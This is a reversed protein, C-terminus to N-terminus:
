IGIAANISDSSGHIFETGQRGTAKISLLKGQLSFYPTLRVKAGITVVTDEFVYSMPLETPKHFEQVVHLTDLNQEVGMFLEAVSKGSKKHLFTVGEGWSSAGHFGSTKLVFARKSKALSALQSSREIGEPMGPAFYAEEGVIWTPPIVQRLHNFTADGLQSRFREQFRRDWLLALVAKEELHPTLSPLLGKTSDHAVGNVLLRVQPDDMYESLYFARYLQTDLNLDDVTRVTWDRGFVSEALYTLQGKYADTKKSFVIEGTPETGNQVHQALIAPDVMTEFGAQNYGDTLLHALGLGFPSTEIECITFGTDTIILDPRVFLYNLPRDTDCFIEPKGRDLLERVQDNDRYLADSAHFFDSVDAGIRHIESHQESTLPFPTPSIRFPLLDTTAHEARRAAYFQNGRTLGELRNRM